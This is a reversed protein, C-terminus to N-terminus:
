LINQKTKEICEQHKKNLEHKSVAKVYWNFRGDHHNKMKGHTIAEQRHLFAGACVTDVDRVVFYFLDKKLSYTTRSWGFISLETQESYEGYVTPTEKYSIITPIGILIAAVGILIVVLGGLHADDKQTKPNQPTQSM